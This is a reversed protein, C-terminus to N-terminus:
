ELPRAAARTSPRIAASAASASRQRLARLGATSFMLTAVTQVAAIAAMLADIGFAEVTPGALALGIVGALLTVTLYATMAKPRFRAPIRATQVATMPGTVLGNCLGAVAFIAAVTAAPLEFVVFWFLVGLPLRAVSTLFLPNVRRVLRAAVLSGALSGGGFAAVLLGATTAEAGYRLFALLPISAFIAQWAAESGSAALTWARLLGDSALARVGALLGGSEERVRARRAAPVFLAVLAFGVLFTAADLWLVNQAGIGIILLGALPPGVLVTARTAGQLLANAEALLREDEGLLEPLIVRQSSFYPTFFIGHCFVLALLVPFSLLDLAYFTPVAAIIPVRVADCVLMTTRAGLRGAVAGSPIGLLAVPLLDVALVLSMRAPSGSTELVFWPLALYSLQSGTTSVIEAALLARIGPRKLV